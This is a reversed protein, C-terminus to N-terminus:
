GLPLRDFWREGFNINLGFRLYRDKVLGNGNQGRQGVDINLDITTGPILSPLSLGGTVGVSRIAEDAVPSAYARDSYFGLRYAIMSGYSAFPRGSGPWFEIGSSVRIRDSLTNQGSTPVGPLSFDSELSTWEEWTLDALITWRREPQFAIGASFGMPLSVDGNTTTGLTDRGVSTTLASSREGDLTTPLTFTSALVLGMGEPLGPLIYRAGITASAGRLRTSERVTRDVFRSDNFITSRAEELIGFLMNVSAGASLRPSFRYGVGGTLQYLGGNGNFEKIIASSEQSSPDSTVAGVDQIRYSVRTYPAMSFGLGVKNTRIPFTLHVGSLMGSALKGPDFGDAETTISEYTLGGAFRTLIQDSLSAPNLPNAYLSSSLALGGGGMAQGKASLWTHRQGLGFRTYVSGDNSNQAVALDATLLCMLLGTFTLVSRGRSTISMSKM